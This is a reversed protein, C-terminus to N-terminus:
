RRFEIIANVLSSASFIIGCGTLTAMFINQMEVSVKFLSGFLVLLCVCLAITRYM